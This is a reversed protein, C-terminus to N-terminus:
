LPNRKSQSQNDAFYHCIIPWKSTKRPTKKELSSSTEKFSSVIATFVTEHILTPLIFECGRDTITFNHMVFIM